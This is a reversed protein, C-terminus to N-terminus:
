KKAHNDKNKQNFRHDNNIKADRIFFCKGDRVEIVGAKEPVHEIYPLLSSPMAFYLRNIKNSSHTHRKEKDKILDHKSVKIEIEYSCGAKTIILLDCEHDFM